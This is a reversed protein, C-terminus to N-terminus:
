RRLDRQPHAARYYIADGPPDANLIPPFVLLIFSGTGIPHQGTLPLIRVTVNPMRSVDALYQLQERM